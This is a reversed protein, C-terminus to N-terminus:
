LDLVKLKPLPIIIKIPVDYIKKLKQIIDESFNWALLIIVASKRFDLENVSLIQIGNKPLFKGVKFENDEVVFNIENSSLRSTKLLLVAKTPSGYAFCPINENTEKKIISNINSCIEFVKQSWGNLFEKNYIVSNREESLFKKAEKSIFGNGSKQLLMRLTGGQIQNVNITIVDFGISCLYKALPAGHHYDLHEHYITDFNGFELVNKFYGVEFVFYGNHKLVSSISKFTSKLDDVHALANQSTVLDVKGFKSIIKNVTDENFFDGITYINKERSIKVAIDAPDVGCVDYGKKKFVDLCTGDNSGIDVVVSSKSINTKEEIWDVYTKIHKVFSSGIGSLYTYNTAYLIDPKVAASLQFHNCAECNLVELPYEDVNFAGKKTSQLNNGLAISGFNIFSSLKKSSCLRCESITRFNENSQM